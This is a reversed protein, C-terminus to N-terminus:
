DWKMKRKCFDFYIDQCRNVNSRPVVIESGDKLTIKKDIQSIYEMNIICQKGVRLFDIGLENEWDKLTKRILKIKTCINGNIIKGTSYEVYTYVHESTIKIIRDYQIYINGRDDKLCITKRGRETEQFFKIKEILVNKDRQFSVKDVFGIVYRGFADQMLEDHSTLFIISSGYRYQELERKLWLGDKGPMEIDLIFLDIKYSVNNLNKILTEASQFLYYTAKEDLCEKCTNKVRNLIESEDDCIVINM